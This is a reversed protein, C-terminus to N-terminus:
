PQLMRAHVYTRPMQGEQAELPPVGVVYHWSNAAREDCAMTILLPRGAFMRARRQVRAHIHAICLRVGVTSMFVRLFFRGFMVLMHASSLQRVEVSQVICVDIRAPSVYGL